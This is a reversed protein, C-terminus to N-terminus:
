ADGGHRRGVALSELLESRLDPGTRCGSRCTACTSWSGASVAPSTSRSTAAAVVWASRTASASSPSPRPVRHCSSSRSGARTSHRSRRAPRATSSPPRRREPRPAPGGPDGGHRAARAPRRGPRGADDAARRRGPHSRAPGAPPRPRARVPRRRDRRLVDVLTLAVAPGATATWVGGTAVVLDAAPRDAWAPTWRALCSLAARAAALRLAVGDGTADAWPAIRLERMRDRLRHRDAIWTSWGAVRDVSQDDPDAPALGATPVIALDLGPAGSWGGPWAGARTGGDFGSKSWM